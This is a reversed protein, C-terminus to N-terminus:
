FIYMSIIIFWCMRVKIIHTFRNAIFRHAESYLDSQCILANILRDILENNVASIHIFILSIYFIWQFSSSLECLLSYFISPKNVHVKFFFMGLRFPFLGSRLSSSDHQLSLNVPHCWIRFKNDHQLNQLVMKVPDQVKHLQTFCM